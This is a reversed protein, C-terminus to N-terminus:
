WKAERTWAFIGGTTEEQLRERMREWALFGAYGIIGKAYRVSSMKIQCARYLRVIEQTGDM